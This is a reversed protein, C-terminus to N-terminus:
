KVFLPVNYAGLLNNWADCARQLACNDVKGGGGTVKNLERDSLTDMTDQAFERVKTDHTM